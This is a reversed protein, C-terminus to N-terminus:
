ANKFRMSLPRNTRSVKSAKLLKRKREMKNKLCERLFALDRMEDLIALYGCYMVLGAGFIVLPEM